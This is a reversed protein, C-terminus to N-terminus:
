VAKAVQVFTLIAVGHGLKNRVILPLTCPKDTLAILLSMWLYALCAPKLLFIVGLVRLFVKAMLRNELSIGKFVAPVIKPM